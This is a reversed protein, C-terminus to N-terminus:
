TGARQWCDKAQLQHHRARVLTDLWLSMLQAPGSPTMITKLLDSDDAFFQFAHQRAGRVEDFYSILKHRTTLTEPLTWEFPDDWLNATIGGSVQEVIRASRLIQEAAPALQQAAPSYLTSEDLQEILERWGTELRKFEQDFWNILDNM